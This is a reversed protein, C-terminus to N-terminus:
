SHEPMEMDLFRIQNIWENNNSIQWLEKINFPTPLAQTLMKRRQIPYLWWALLIIM